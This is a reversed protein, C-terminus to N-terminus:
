LKDYASLAWEANPYDLHTFNGTSVNEFPLEPVDSEIIENFRLISRDLYFPELISIYEYARFQGNVTNGSLRGLPIYAGDPLQNTGVLAGPGLRFKTM